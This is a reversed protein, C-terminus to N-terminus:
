QDQCSFQTMESFAIQLTCLVFCTKQNRLLFECAETDEASHPTECQFVKTRIRM